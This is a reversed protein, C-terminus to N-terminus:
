SKGKGFFNYRNYIRRITYSRILSIITFVVSMGGADAISVDYGFAPLVTINAIFGIGIGIIINTLSEALSGKTTQWTPFKFAELQERSLTITDPDIRRYQVDYSHQKDECWTIEQENKPFDCDYQLWITEPMKDTM